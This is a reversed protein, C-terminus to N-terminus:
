NWSKKKNLVNIISDQNRLITAQNIIILTRISDNKNVWETQMLEREQLRSKLKVNQIYQYGQTVYILLVMGIMIIIIAKQIKHLVPSM